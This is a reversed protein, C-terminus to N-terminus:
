VITALLVTPPSVPLAQPFGCRGNLVASLGGMYLICSYARSAFDQFKMKINQVNKTFYLIGALHTGVENGVPIRLRLFMEFLSHM